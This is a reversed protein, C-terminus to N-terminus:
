LVGADDEQLEEGQAEKIERLVAKIDYYEYGLRILGNVARRVGKETTLASSYKGSLLEAIHERSDDEERMEDAVCDAINRDIGKRRLELAINRPAMHKVERLRGAYARAFAEDDILKLEKMREVAAQAAQADVYRTLKQFLEKEAYSRRSLCDLAKSKAVFFDSQAQLDSIEEATLTDGSHLSTNDWFTKDIVALETEGCYLTVTRKKRNHFVTIEPM